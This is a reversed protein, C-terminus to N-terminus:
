QAEFIMFFLCLFFFVYMRWETRLLQYILCWLAILSVFLDEIKRRHWAEVLPHFIQMDEELVVWRTLIQEDCCIYSDSTDLLFGGERIKREASTIFVIKKEINDPVM